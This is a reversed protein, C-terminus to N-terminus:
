GEDPDDGKNDKYNDLTEEFIGELELLKNRDDM